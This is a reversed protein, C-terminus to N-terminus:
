EEIMRQIVARSELAALALERNQNGGGVSVGALAALGGLESTLGQGGSDRIQVSAQSRFIETALLTHSVSVATVIFTCLIILLKDAWLTEILAWLDIEDEYAPRTMQAESM